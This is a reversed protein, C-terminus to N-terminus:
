RRAEGSSKAALEMPKIHAALKAARDSDALSAVASFLALTTVCAAAAAIVKQKRQTMKTCEKTAEISM